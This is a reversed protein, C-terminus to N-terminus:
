FWASIKINWRQEVKDKDCKVLWATKKDVIELCRNTPAHVVSQTDNNYEFHQSGPSKGETASMVHCIYVLVVTEDGSGPGDWCYRDNSGVRINSNKTFGMTHGDNVTTTGKRCPYPVIKFNIAELCLNPMAVSQLEGVISFQDQEWSLYNEYVENIYYSYDKCKHEVPDFSSKIRISNKKITEAFKLDKTFKLVLKNKAEDEKIFNIAESLSEGM